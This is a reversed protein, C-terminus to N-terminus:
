ILKKFLALHKESSTGDIVGLAGALFRQQNQRQTRTFEGRSLALTIKKILDHASSPSWAAGFEEIHMHGPGWWPTTYFLPKGCLLPWLIATTDWSMVADCSDVFKEISIPQNYLIKVNFYRSLPEIKDISQGPHTRLWIEIDSKQSSIEAFIEQIFQSLAFTDPPYITVLLGLRFPIHFVLKKAPQQWFAKKNNFFSDLFPYGLNFIRAPPIKLAKRFREKILRGWVIIYDSVHKAGFNPDHFGHLLVVTPIKLNKASYVFPLASPGPDHTTILLKPKRFQMISQAVLTRKITRSLYHECVLKLKFSLAKKLIDSIGSPFLDSITSM